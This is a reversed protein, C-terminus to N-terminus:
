DPRGTKEHYMRDDSHKLLAEAETGHEPYLALGISAVTHLRTGDITCDEQLATRIKEIVALADHPGHIDELIMVFEDGGLRAVTDAKRVCGELCRAIHQLLRDGASHGLTDNVRKFDDIDIYLLAMPRQKRKARALATALRDHFLRRNPLNTLDDYQAARLLRAKLQGREIATAVQASVFHLLERDKDSYSAGPRAKLILVGIAERQAVLPLILWASAGQAAADVGSPAALADHTLQLPQGSRLVEECLKRATTEEILPDDNDDNRQYPFGLQDPDHMCTAVALGALPVCRAIIAHILSFLSDLDKASHAAESVAYTAAQMAEALKQGTVDRAVGIRLKDAESWRASWMIHVIQGNKHVYRNEFGVRPFGAMIKLSEERTRALDEPYLFNVMRQGIMEAQTYGFIRECAPNVYHIHGAADVLFVADLLLDVCNLLRDQLPQDM